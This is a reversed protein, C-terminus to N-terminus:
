FNETLSVCYTERSESGDRLDAKHEYEELKTEIAIRLHTQVKVEVANFLRSWLTLHRASNTARGLM